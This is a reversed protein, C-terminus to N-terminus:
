VRVVVTSGFLGEPKAILVAVIMLLPLLIQLDSGLWPLFAMSLSQSVGVIAGGIVAGRYSTLGGVVAAAFAYIIIAGMMNPDLTLKPAVLLGSVAGLGASLGWGLAMMATFPIGVLKASVANSAAARLAVGLRTRQFLLFMGVSIAILVLVTGILEASVRYTGFTLGTAPFPSPLSMQMFGWIAGNMSNFALMLGLTVIIITLEDKNQVPRVVILYTVAGVVISVVVAILLAWGLPAGWATLQWAIYASFTAMEGQAFNAINTTRYILVLALGLSAYIAGDGIGNIIQQFLYHM